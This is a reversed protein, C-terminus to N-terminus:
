SQLFYLAISSSAIQFQQIKISIVSQRCLDSPYLITMKKLSEADKLLYKILEIENEEGRIEMEVEKLSYVFELNQSEWYEATYCIQEEEEVQSSPSDESIDWRHIKLTNLRLTSILLFVRFVTIMICLSSVRCITELVKGIIGNALAGHEDDSSTCPLISLNSYSLSEFSGDYSYHSVIGHWSFQELKPAHLTLSYIQPKVTWYKIRLYSLREASVKICFSDHDDFSVMLDELILKELSSSSINLEAIGFIDDLFLMKLSKCSSIWESFLEISVSMRELKLSELGGFSTAAPLKLLSDPVIGVVVELYRLSASNLVGSPLAFM